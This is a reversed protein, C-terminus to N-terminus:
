STEKPNSKYPPITNENIYLMMLKSVDYIKSTALIDAMSLSINLEAKAQTRDYTRSRMRTDYTRVVNDTNRAAGGVILKETIKALNYRNTVRTEVLVNCRITKEPTIVPVKPLTITYDDAYFVTSLYERILETGLKLYLWEFFKDEEPWNRYHTELEESYSWLQQPELYPNVLLFHAEKFLAITKIQKPLQDLGILTYHEMGIISSYVTRVNGHIYHEVLSMDGSGVPSEKLQQVRYM